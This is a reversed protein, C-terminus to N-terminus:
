RGIKLGTVESLEKGSFRDPMKVTRQGNTRIEHHTSTSSNGESDTSTTTYRRLYSTHDLQISKKVKAPKNLWSSMVVVTNEVGLHMVHTKLTALAYLLLGFLFTAAILVVVGIIKLTSSTIVQGDSDFPRTDLESYKYYSPSYQHGDFVPWEDEFGVQTWYAFFVREGDFPLVPSPTSNYTQNVSENCWQPFEMSSVISEFESSTFESMSSERVVKVCSYGVGGVYRQQGSTNSFGESQGFEDTCHWVEGDTECYFWWDDFNSSRSSYSCYWRVDGAFDDGEWECYNYQIWSDDYSYLYGIVDVNPGSEWRFADYYGYGESEIITVNDQSYYEVSITDYRTDCFYREDEDVSQNDFAVVAGDCSQPFLGFTDSVPLAFVIFFLVAPILLLLVPFSTKKLERPEHPTFTDPVQQVHIKETQSGLHDTTVVEKPDDIGRDLSKSELEDQQLVTATFEDDLLEPEVTKSLTSSKEDGLGDWFNGEGSM